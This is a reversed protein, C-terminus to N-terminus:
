KIKVKRANNSIKHHVDNSQMQKRQLKGVHGIRARVERTHGASRVSSSKHM